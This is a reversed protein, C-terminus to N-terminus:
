DPMAKKELNALLAAEEPSVDLAFSHPPHVALRDHDPVIAITGV